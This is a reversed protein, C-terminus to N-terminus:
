FFFYIWFSMRGLSNRLKKLSITMQNKVTKESIGMKEAIEKNSLHENRSLIFIKRAQDPLTEVFQDIMAKLEKLEFAIDTFSVGIEEKPFSKLVEDRFKGQRIANLVKFRVATLLYPVFDNIKLQYKNRWLWVFVDQVVDMAIEEDRTANFAAKYATTWYKNYLESFAVEDGTVLRSLLEEDTQMKLPVM